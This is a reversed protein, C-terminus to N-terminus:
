FEYKREADDGTRDCYCETHNSKLEKIIDLIKYTNEM